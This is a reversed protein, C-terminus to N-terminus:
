ERGLVVGAFIRVVGVGVVVAVVADILGVIIVLGLLLLFCMLM